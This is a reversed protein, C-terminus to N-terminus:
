GGVCHVWEWDAFSATGEARSCNYGIAVSYDGEATCGSGDAFSATGEASCNYGMAVSYEGTATNYGSIDVGGVTFAGSADGGRIITKLLQIGSVDVSEPKLLNNVM